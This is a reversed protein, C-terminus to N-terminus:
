GRPNWRWVIEGGHRLIPCLILHKTGNEDVLVWDDTDIYDQYEELQRNLIDLEKTADQELEIDVLRISECSLEIFKALRVASATNSRLLSEDYIIRGWLNPFDKDEETVSGVKLAGLYLNYRMLVQPRVCWNVRWPRQLPTTDRSFLIRGRDHHL